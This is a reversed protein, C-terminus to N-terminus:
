GDLILAERLYPTLNVSTVEGTYRDFIQFGDAWDMETGHEMRVLCFLKVRGPDTRCTLSPSLNGHLPFSVNTWHGLAEQIVPDTLDALQMQVDKATLMGYEYDPWRVDAWQVSEAGDTPVMAVLQRVALIPPLLVFCLALLALSVQEARMKCEEIGVDASAVLGAAVPHRSASEETETIACSIGNIESLSTVTDCSAHQSADLDFHCFSQTVLQTRREVEVGGILDDTM